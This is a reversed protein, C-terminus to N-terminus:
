AFGANFGAPVRPQYCFGPLRFMVASGKNNESWSIGPAPKTDNVAKCIQSRLPLMRGLTFAPTTQRKCTRSPHAYCPDGWARNFYLMQKFSDMKGSTRIEAKFNSYTNLCPVFYAFPCQVCHYERIKKTSEPRYVIGIERRVRVM